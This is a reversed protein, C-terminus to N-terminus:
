SSMFGVLSWLGKLFLLGAIWTKYGALIPPSGTFLIAASILDAAAGLIYVPLPLYVPKIMSGTGKFVLFGAHLQAFLVPVGSVTFFLMSGSLIDLAGLPDPRIANM